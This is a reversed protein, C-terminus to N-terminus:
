GQSTSHMPTIPKAEDLEDDPNEWLVRENSLNVGYVDSLIPLVKNIDAKCAKGRYNDFKYEMTGNASIAFRSQNGAPNAAQVLVISEGKENNFITPAAVAFGASQLSNMVAIVVERRVNEDITAKDELKDAADIAQALDSGSAQQIKTALKAAEDKSSGLANLKQLAAERQQRESEQQIQQDIQQQAQQAQHDYNQKLASIEATIRDPSWRENKAQVRM